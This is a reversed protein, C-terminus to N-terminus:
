VSSRWCSVWARVTGDHRAGARPCVLKAALPLLQPQGGSPHQRGVSLARCRWHAEGPGDARRHRVGRRRDLLGSLDQRWGGDDGVGQGAPRTWGWRDCRPAAGAWVGTREPLPQWRARPARPVGQACRPRQRTDSPPALPRAGSAGPCFAFIGNTKGIRVEGHTKSKQQSNAEPMDNRAGPYQTPLYRRM